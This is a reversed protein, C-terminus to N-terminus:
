KEFFDFFNKERHREFKSKIESKNHMINIFLVNKSLIEERDSNTGFFCSQGGGGGGKILFFFVYKIYFFFYFFCFFCFVGFVFFFLRGGGGGGMISIFNRWQICIFLTQFALGLVYSVTLYYM